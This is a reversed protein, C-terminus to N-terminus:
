NSEKRINELVKFGDCRELVIDMVVVDPKRENILEILEDGNSTTAVIDFREETFNQILDKLVSQDEDALVVTIKKM